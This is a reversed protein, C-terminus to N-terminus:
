LGHDEKLKDMIAAAGAAILGYAREFDKEDGYWPDPVDGKGLFLRIEAHADDPARGAIERFHGGDLAYIYDFRDFDGDALSRAKQAGLDVGHRKAVKVARADPGEGVHGSSTGASDIFFADELGAKAALHRFVGEATPSRCINGTCVFLVSIM